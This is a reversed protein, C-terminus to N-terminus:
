GALRAQRVIERLSPRTGSSLLGIRFLRAGVRLAMWTAAILVLLSGAIEWWALSASDTSARLMMVQAATFPIWCLVKAVTGNPDQLLVTMMIMPAAATLSWVMALQQAERMNTGLSGTGLMLGGFFMFAVIFFPIAIGLAVWPVDVRTAVLMPLVGVGTAMLMSLWVTIQLLGAGGLGFLKGALIEDPNASSLLVEVVKNEKETATGQMLYGSTMLVSVLFLIMFILPVVLSVISSITGGDRVEGTRTVAYRRTRQIPRIIRTSTTADLRQVVLRERLLAAMADRADSTSFTFTDPSYADIEGAALYDRPIVFYGKLTRNALAARAESENQIPRFVFNESALASDLAQGQGTAELTRRMEEPIPQSTATSLDGSLRLVGADDVIGYVVPEREKQQAFYAPIAVIGGYAAMFLPMGFTAIVYGPRKVAALFEFTAVTKVKRWRIM